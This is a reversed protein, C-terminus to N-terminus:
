ILQQVHYVTGYNITYPYHTVLYRAAVRYRTGPYRCGTSLIQTYGGRFRILKRPIGTGTGPVPDVRDKALQHRYRYWTGDPLGM